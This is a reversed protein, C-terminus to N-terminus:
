EAKIGAARAIKAFLATEDRILRDFAEPSTPRPEIGIPAWKSRTGADALVARIGANLKDIIPRPTSSATLLGFWLESEYGRVGAADITPVEPLLPDRKLSSVGLGVLRGDKVPGVANAIPAMFFQVRGTLTETLAEPIGKFPVHVVDIGAMAKFIEGAFHTGSGIGASSFNFSGPKAKAARLLEALSKLGLSPAVVLVYKSSGTQTVGTLQAMEYPLKPYIAAAAAHASSVSLLTYGDGPAKAVQAAALTGGAGPRNEVLVQQKWAAGLQQAIHRATIDPGGGPTFGVIIRIPKEPYDAQAAAAFLL